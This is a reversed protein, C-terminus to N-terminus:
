ISHYAHSLKADLREITKDMTESPALYFVKGQKGDYYWSHFLAPAQWREPWNEQVAKIDKATQLKFVRYFTSQAWIFTDIWNARQSTWIMPVKKSRGAVFMTRVTESPGLLHGEDIYVGIKGHKFVRELLDELAARDDRRISPRVVHLGKNPLFIPNLKLKEAPLRAINDDGKHDIVIWAMKDFDRFSLMNLAAVTKGSGTMGAIAIHETDSPSNPLM